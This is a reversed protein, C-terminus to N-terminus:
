FKSPELTLHIVRGFCRFLFCQHFFGKQNVRKSKNMFPWICSLLLFLFSSLSPLFFFLSILSLCDISFPLSVSIIFECFCRKPYFLNTENECSFVFVFWAMRLVLLVFSVLFFCVCLFFVCWFFFLFLFLSPKSGLSPFLVFVVLGGVWRAGLLFCMKTCIEGGWLPHMQFNQFNESNRQCMPFYLTKQM